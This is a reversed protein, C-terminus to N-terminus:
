NEPTKIILSNEILLVPINDIIPFYLNIHKSKYYKSDNYTVIDLKDNFIPSIYSVPSENINDKTSEENINDNKKIFYLYNNITETTKLEYFSILNYNLKIITEYLYKVYKHKDMRERLKLSAEKYSIEFLILNNKCIRYLEKLIIEENDINPEIASATYVIDFSNDDFPLNNMDAVSLNCMPLHKKAIKTRSLSLEVGYFNIKDLTEKDLSEILHRMTNGEGIGVEIINCTNKSKLINNIEKKLIDIRKKTPTAENNYKAEYNGAQLEYGIQIIKLRTLNTNKELFQMFNESELLDKYM